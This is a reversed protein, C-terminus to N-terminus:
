LARYRTTSASILSHRTEFAAELRLPPRIILIIFLTALSPYLDTHLWSCFINLFSAVRHTPPPSQSCCAFVVHISAALARPIPACTSKSPADFGRSRAGM